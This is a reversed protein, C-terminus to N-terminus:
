ATGGGAQRLWAEAGAAESLVAAAEGPLGYLAAPDLGPRLFAALPPVPVTM